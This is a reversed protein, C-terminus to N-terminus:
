FLPSSGPAGKQMAWVAVALAIHAVMPLIGAEGVLVSDNRAPFLRPFLWQGFMNHFTHFWVAPLLSGSGYSFAAWVYSDAICNVTFMAFTWYPRVTRQYGAFVILPLHSLAWAVGVITAVPFLGQQELKPHLYGRWGLEEGASGVFGVIGLLAVNLAVNAVVRTQSWPPNWRVIGAAVAGAYALAYVAFEIAAPVWMASVVPRWALDLPLPSRWTPDVFSVTIVRAIAPSWMLISILLLAYPSRVDIRFSRLLAAGLSLLAFSLVIFVVAAFM